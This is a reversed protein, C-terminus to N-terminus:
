TKCDLTETLATKGKFREGLKEYARMAADGELRWLCLERVEPSAAEYESKLMSWAEEISRGESHAKFQALIELLIM